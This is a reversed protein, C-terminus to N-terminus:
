IDGLLFFSNKSLLKIVIVFVTTLLMLTSRWRALSANDDVFYLFFTQCGGSIHSKEFYCILELSSLVDTGVNSQCM